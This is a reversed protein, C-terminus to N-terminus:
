EALGCRSREKDGSEGSFLFGLEKFCNKNLGLLAIPRDCLLLRSSMCRPNRWFSELDELLCLSLSRDGDGSDEGSLDFFGELRFFKKRLGLFGGPAVLLEFRSNIRSPMLLVACEAGTSFLRDVLVARDLFFFDRFREVEGSGLFSLGMDKLFSSSGDLFGLLPAGVRDRLSSKSSIRAGNSEGGLLGARSRSLDKDGSLILSSGSDFPIVAPIVDPTVFKRSLKYSEKM